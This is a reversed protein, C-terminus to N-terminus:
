KTSGKVIWVIAGLVALVIIFGIPGAMLFVVWAVTLVLAGGIVMRARRAAESRAQLLATIGWLVLGILGAAMVKGIWADEM